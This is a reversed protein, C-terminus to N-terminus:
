FHVCSGYSSVMVQSWVLNVDNTVGGLLDEM